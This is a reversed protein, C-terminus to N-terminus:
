QRRSSKKDPLSQLVRDEAKLYVIYEGEIPSLEGQQAQTLINNRQTLVKSYVLLDGSPSSSDVAGCVEVPGSSSRRREVPVEDSSTSVLSPYYVTDLYAIFAPEKEAYSFKEMPCLINTRLQWADLPGIRKKSYACAKKTMRELILQAGM